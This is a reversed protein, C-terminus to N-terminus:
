QIVLVIDSSVFTSHQLCKFQFLRQKAQCECHVHFTAPSYCSTSTSMTRGGLSNCAYLAAFQQCSIPALSSGALREGAPSARGEAFYWPLSVSECATFISTEFHTALLSGSFWKWPAAHHVCCRVPDTNSSTDLFHPNRDGDKQKAVSSSCPFKM